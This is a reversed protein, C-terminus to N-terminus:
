VGEWKDVLHKLQYLAHTLAKIQSKDFSTASIGSKFHTVKVFSIRREDYNNPFNQLVDVRYESPNV